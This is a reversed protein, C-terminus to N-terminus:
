RSEDAHAHPRVVHEGDSHVGVGVAKEGDSRHGDADGGADLDEVPEARHPAALDLNLVGISNQMPKRKWNRIAPRVPM